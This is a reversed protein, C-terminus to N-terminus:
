NGYIAEQIQRWSILKINEKELIKRCNKSTFFDFDEQRWKAGWHPHDITLGQMEADNFATHILLINIGPSLNTLTKTYYNGLGSEYDSISATLIKEIIIDEPQILAKFDSSVSQLFFRGVMVPIKYERGLKLYIGFLEPSTFVLCGMHTDLHSPKIGMKFAKEIQARLELEVEDIKAHKSFAMCDAYFFGLSDVLSKVQDMPAVPGWKMYKWESTLTLHLGLDAEPNMQAYDAIEAVWPCPMMISGSNVMGIKMALISATNEAHAVGLDDAHLILLKDDPQYGLKQALNKQAILNFGFLLLLCCLIFLPKLSAM